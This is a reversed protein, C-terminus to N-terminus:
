DRTAKMIVLAAVGVVIAILAVLWWDLGSAVATAGAAVTAGGTAVGEPIKVVPKTVVLSTGGYGAKRLGKEYILALKAIEAQRDVGNVIRRANLYERYDETDSEDVDDIYDNLDKGTYMGKEMGVFLAPLAYPWELLKNPYKILDVGVVPSMKKYNEKWTTQILGRGYWPYYRLNKKRWAEGLYYAEKVPQMTKGTEWLATALIYALDNVKTKRAVAYDIIKEHGQVSTQTLNINPRITDYFVKRDM